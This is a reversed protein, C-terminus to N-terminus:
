QLVPALPSGAVPEPLMPIDIAEIQGGRKVHDLIQDRDNDMVQRMQPTRRPNHGYSVAEAFGEEIPTGLHLNKYLICFLGTRETGAGCHVLVPQKAPDSALRLAQIYANPNGTADGYLRFVYRTVGVADAARQNRIEGQPDDHIKSGLDIVTRIDYERCVERFAEPTLQGSRYVKGVDVVGFRKPLINPRLDKYTFRAVVAAAIVAGVIVAARRFRQNPVTIPVPTIIRARVM